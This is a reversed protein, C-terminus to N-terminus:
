PRDDRKLLPLAGFVHDQWLRRSAEEPYAIVVPELDYVRVLRQRIDYRPWGPDGTAAFAAWDIRLRTGLAETEPPAAPGLLLPGSATGSAGFLLPLDLGHCAGLADGYASGAWTLEYVHARGGGAVQAEALHLSPMRFLRDSRVLSVLEEATAAPYTERYAREGDAGPGFARLAFSAGADDIAGLQGNMLMFLRYEDRTHGAMLEVDRGAGAALAQWPATPLVEGDVVPAFPGEYAVPGWRDAFEGMRATLAAGADPLRQPDIAALDEVTPRVGAEAAIAAAIDRALPDSFFTGPVSQAIARHFLGQAAPMVLLAAVSGGGASEGFVTVAGPDGGFAAINERVWRLAAVQDLLGRNAPAGDIRAFGEIGVRYNFTVVVLDGARVIARGDFADASGVQYGGGHIWVMVPRAGSADPTWVNVTLWSDDETSAAIGPPLAGAQPVSPDQPPPPGFAFAKRVGSWPRVPHPAAFRARGVPPAAFPIGRFVALGDEWRGRVVGATTRVEPGASAAHPKTEVPTV